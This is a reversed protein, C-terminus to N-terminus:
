MKQPYTQMPKDVVWDRITERSVSGALVIAKENWTFCRDCEFTPVPSRAPQDRYL